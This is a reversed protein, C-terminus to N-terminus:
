QPPKIDYVVVARLGKGELIVACEILSDNEINFAEDFRELVGDSLYIRRKKSDMLFVYGGTRLYIGSVKATVLETGDPITRASKSPLTMKTNTPTALNPVVPPQEPVKKEPLLGRVKMAYRSLGPPLSGLKKKKSRRGM